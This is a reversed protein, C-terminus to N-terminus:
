DSMGKLLDSTIDQEAPPQAKLRQGDLNQKSPQDQKPMQPPKDKPPLKGSKIWIKYNAKAIKYAKELATNMGAIDGDNVPFKWKKCLAKLGAPTFHSFAAKELLKVAGAKMLAFFAEEEKNRSILCLANAIELGWKVTSGYAPILKLTELQVLQSLTRPQMMCALSQYYTEPSDYAAMFYKYQDLSSETLAIMKGNLLPRVRTQLAFYGQKYQDIAPYISIEEGRQKVWIPGTYETKQQWHPKGPAMQFAGSSKNKKVQLQGTFINLEKRTTPLGPNNFWAGMLHLRVAGPMLHDVEKHILEKRCSDCEDQYWELDLKPNLKSKVSLLFAHEVKKITTDEPEAQFLKFRDLYLGLGARITVEQEEILRQNPDFIKVKVFDTIADSLPESAQGDYRYYVKVSKGHLKDAKIEIPDKAASSADGLSLTGPSGPPLSFAVGHAAPLYIEMRAPFAPHAYILAAPPDDEARTPTLRPCITIKTKQLKAKYHLKDVAAFNKDLSSPRWYFSEIYHAFGGLLDNVSAVLALGGKGKCEQFYQGWHPVHMKIKYAQPTGDKNPTICYAGEIEGFFRNVKPKKGCLKWYLCGPAQPKRGGAWTVGNQTYITADGELYRWPVLGGKQHDKTKWTFRVQRNIYSVPGDAKKRVRQQTAVYLNGRKAVPAFSLGDKNEGPAVTRTSAGKRVWTGVGCGRVSLIFEGELEKKEAKGKFVGELPIEVRKSGKTDIVPSGVADGKFPISFNGSSRNIDGEFKVLYSFKEPKRLVFSFKGDKGCYSGPPMIFVGESRGDMKNSKYLTAVVFGNRPDKAAVKKEGSYVGYEFPPKAPATRPWLAGSFVIVLFLMLYQSKSKAAM